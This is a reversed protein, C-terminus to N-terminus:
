SVVPGDRCGGPASGSPSSGAGCEWTVTTGALCQGAANPGSICNNVPWWVPNSGDQCNQATGGNGCVEYQADADGGYICSWGRAEGGDRLGVSLLRPVEYRM